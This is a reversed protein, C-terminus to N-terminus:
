MEAATMNADEGTGEEAHVEETDEDEGEFELEDDYGDENDDDEMGDGCDIGSDDGLIDDSGAEEETEDEPQDEGHRKFGQSYFTPDWARLAEIGKRVAYADLDLGWGVIPVVMLSDGVKDLYYKRGHTDSANSLDLPHDTEEALIAQVPPFALMIQLAEALDRLHPDETSARQKSLVSVNRQRCADASQYFRRLSESSSPTQNKMQTATDLPLTKNPGIDFNARMTDAALINGHIMRTVFFIDDRDFHAQEMSRELEHLQQSMHAM